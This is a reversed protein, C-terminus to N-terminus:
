KHTAPIILPEMNKQKKRFFRLSDSLKKIHIKKRRIEEETDRIITDWSIKASIDNQKQRTVVAIGEAVLKPLVAVAKLAEATILATLREGFIVCSRM